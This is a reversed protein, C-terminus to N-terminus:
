MKFAARLDSLAAGEAALGSMSLAADWADALGKREKSPVLMVNVSFRDVATLSKLLQVGFVGNEDQGTTSNADAPLIRQVVTAVIGGLIHPTMSSKFLQPLVDPQLLRLYSAQADLDGKMSRWHSEFDTSTTPVQPQRQPLDLPGDIPSGRGSGKESAADGQHEQRVAGDSTGLAAPQPAEECREAPSQAPKDGLLEGDSITGRSSAGPCADALEAATGAAKEATSTVVTVPVDVLDQPLELGDQTLKSRLASQFESSVAKSGPALRLAAELDALRGRKDGLEQRVMARRQWAKLYTADLGIAQLVRCNAAHALDASLCVCLVSIQFM